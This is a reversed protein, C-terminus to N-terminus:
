DVQGQNLLDLIMHRNGASAKLIGRRYFQALELSNSAPYPKLIGMIEPSRHRPSAGPPVASGELDARFLKSDHAGPSTSPM